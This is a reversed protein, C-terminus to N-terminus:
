QFLGLLEIELAPGDEALIDMLVRLGVAAIGSLDIGDLIVDGVAQGAEVLQNASGVLIASIFRIRRDQQRATRGASANTEQPGFCTAGVSSGTASSPRAMLGMVPEQTLKAQFSTRFLYVLGVSVNM